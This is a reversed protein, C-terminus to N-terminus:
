IKRPCTKSIQEDAIFHITQLEQFLKKIICVSM